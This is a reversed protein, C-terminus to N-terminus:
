VRAQARRPQARLASGLAAFGALLMLWTAPEPVGGAHSGAPGDGPGGGVPLPEFGGGPPTFPGGPGPATPGFSTPTLVPPGGAPPDICLAGVCVGGVPGPDTIPGTPGGSPPTPGGGSGGGSGGGGGGGSGGGGGGSPVGGTGEAGATFGDPETALGLDGDPGPKGGQNPNNDGAALAQVYDVLSMLGDEGNPMVDHSSRDYGEGPGYPGHPAEGTQPLSGAGSSGAGGSGGGSGGGGPPKSTPGGEAAPGGDASGGGPGGASTGAQARNHLVGSTFALAALAAMAAAVGGALRRTQKSNSRVQDM